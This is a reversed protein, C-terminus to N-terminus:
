FQESIVNFWILRIQFFTKGESLEGDGKDDENEEEPHLWSSKLKKKLYNERIKSNKSEYNFSVCPFDKM